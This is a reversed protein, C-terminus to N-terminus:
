LERSSGCMTTRWDAIHEMTVCSHLATHPAAVVAYLSRREHTLQRRTSRAAVSRKYMCPLSVTLLELFHVAPADAAFQKHSIEILSDFQSM